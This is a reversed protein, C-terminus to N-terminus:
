SAEGDCTYDGVKDPKHVIKKHYIWKLHTIAAKVHFSMILLRFEACKDSGKFFIIEVCHKDLKQSM